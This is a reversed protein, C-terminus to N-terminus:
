TKCKINRIWIGKPISFRGQNETWCAFLQSRPLVSLLRMVLSAPPSSWTVMTDAAPGKSSQQRSSSQISKMTRATWLRKSMAAKPPDANGRCMPLMYSPIGPLQPRSHHQTNQGPRRLEAPFSTPIHTHTHEHAWVQKSQPSLCPLPKLSSFLALAFLSNKRRQKSLLAVARM